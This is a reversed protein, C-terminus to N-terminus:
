LIAEDVMSQVTEGIEYNFLTEKVDDLTIGAEKCKTEVFTQFYKGEPTSLFFDNYLMEGVVRDYEEDDTRGYILDEVLYHSHKSEFKTYYECVSAECRDDTETALIIENVVDRIPLSSKKVPTMDDDKWYEDGYNFSSQMASMPSSYRTTTYPTKWVPKDVNKLEEDFNFKTIDPLKAYQEHKYEQEVEQMKPTLTGIHKKFLTPVDELVLSLDDMDVSISGLTCRLHVDCEDTNNLNGITFHFGERNTEDAEDTGSQFASTSCHHHVTGFLTDPYAARQKAFEPNEPNSKVSMGSTTQPPIWYSWPSESNDEDYYLFLLTESKLKDYSIKMFALIDRWMELPIKKGHWKPTLSPVEPVDQLQYTTFLPHSVRKFVQNDYVAYENSM